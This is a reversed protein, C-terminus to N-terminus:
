LVIKCILVFSGLFYLPFAIANKKKEVPIDSVGDVVLRDMMPFLNVQSLPLSRQVDDPVGQIAEMEFTPNM